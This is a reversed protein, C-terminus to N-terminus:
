PAVERHPRGRGTSGLATDPAPKTEGLREYASAPVERPDKYLTFRCQATENPYSPPEVVMVPYGFQEIPLKEYTLCCHACYPCVGKKNWSFDHERELFRYHYPAEARSGTGSFADGGTIRGGSGCPSLTVEVRDDHERLTISRADRGLDPLHLRAGILLFSVLSDFTDRWDHKAVDFRGFGRAFVKVLLYDRYLAELAEEGLRVVVANLLGCVYDLDRDHVGRWQVVWANLSALATKTPANLHRVLRAKLMRYAVLEADRDYPADEDFRQNVLSRLDDRVGELEAEGMGEDLLFRGIGAIWEAFVFDYVHAAERDFFDIYELADGFRRELIAEEIKVYTPFLQDQADGKRVRRDLVKSYETVSM